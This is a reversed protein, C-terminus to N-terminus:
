PTPEAEEVTIKIGDKELEARCIPCDHLHEAYIQFAIQYDADKLAAKHGALTIDRYKEYAIQCATIPHAM